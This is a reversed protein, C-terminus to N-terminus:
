ELLDEGQLQVVADDELEPDAADDLLDPDEEQDTDEEDPIFTKKDNGNAEALEKLEKNLNDWFGTDTGKSNKKQALPAAIKRQLAITAKIAQSKVPKKWMHYEQMLTSTLKDLPVKALQFIQIRYKSKTNNLQDTLFKRVTSKVVDDTTFSKVSYRKKHSAIYNMANAIIAKYSFTPHVMQHNLLEKLGIEQTKSLSYSQKVLARIGSIDSKLQHLDSQFSSIKLDLSLTQTYLVGM